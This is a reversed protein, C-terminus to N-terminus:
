SHLLTCFVIIAISGVELDQSSALYTWWSNRVTDASPNYGPMYWVKAASVRCSHYILYHVQPLISCRLYNTPEILFRSSSSSLSSKTIQVCLDHRRPGPTWKVGHSDAIKELIADLHYSSPAQRSTAQLVVPSVHGYRNDRASSAVQEGLRDAIM